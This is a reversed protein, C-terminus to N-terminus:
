LCLKRGVGRRDQALDPGSRARVPDALPNDIRLRELEGRSHRSQKVAVIEIRLRQVVQSM